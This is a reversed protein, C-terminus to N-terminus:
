YLDAWIKRTKIISITTQDINYIKALEVQKLNSARIELVEKETLKAAHSKEGYYAKFLKNKVAHATNESKTNWELNWLSNFSKGLLPYKHNVEPKNEPNPIFACAVLRHISNSKKVKNKSLGVLAYGYAYSPKLIRERRLTPIENKMPVYRALSKVRALDSIQYIGEFGEIDKWIENKLDIDSISYFRNIIESYNHM